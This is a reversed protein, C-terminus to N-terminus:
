VIIRKDWSPQLKSVIDDIEENSAYAIYKIRTLNDSVRSLMGNTMYREYDEPKLGGCKRARICYYYSDFRKREWVKRPLESKSTYVDPIGDVFRILDEVWCKFFRKEWTRTKKNEDITYFPVTLLIAKQDSNAFAEYVYGLWAFGYNDRYKRDCENKVKESKLYTKIFATRYFSLGIATTELFCSDLFHDCDSFKRDETVGSLGIIIMEYDNQMLPFLRVDMQEFDLEVGDAAVYCYRCQSNMLPYMPKYGITVDSDLHIYEIKSGISENVSNVLLKTEDNTSSDYVSMKINRELINQLHLDFWTEVWEKRNYTVLAFELFDDEFIYM